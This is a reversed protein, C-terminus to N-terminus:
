RRREYDVTKGEQLLHGFLIFQMACLPDCVMAWWILLNYFDQRIITHLRNEYGEIINMTVWGWIMATLKAVQRKIWLSVCLGNYCKTQGNPLTCICLNCCNNQKNSEGTQMTIKKHPFNFIIEICYFPLYCNQHPSVLRRYLTHLQKILQELM